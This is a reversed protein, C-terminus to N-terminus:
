ISITTFSEPLFCCSTEIPLDVWARYSKTQKRIDVDVLGVPASITKSESSDLKVNLFTMIGVLLIHSMLTNIALYYFTKRNSLNIKLNQPNFLKLGAYLTIPLAAASWLLLKVTSAIFNLAPFFTTFFIFVCACVTWYTITLTRKTQSISANMSKEEVNSENTM